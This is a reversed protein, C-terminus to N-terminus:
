RKREKIKTKKMEKRLIRVIKKYTYVLKATYRLKIMFASPNSHM